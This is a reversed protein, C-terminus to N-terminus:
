QEFTAEKLMKEVLDTYSMGEYAAIEPCISLPTMGPHTNVELTYYVQNIEDYILEVRVMGKCEFISWVKEAIDIIDRYVDPTIPAPLLHESFGETYKTEYDYFKKGKLLKLELIGLAKGDLVAIQMERGSIYQELIIEKGYPFDYSAFDFDDEPFIIEIGISSGQSLPKIVYPRELPDTKLNDSKKVIVSKAVKINNAKFIENSKKKNFALSSALVGCGTYPIKMINLLGPLCGDEGYTGHLANFVVDPKIEMIANGVDAGMDLFTVRHGLDLLSRVIGDSSMYSVEREASMGGGLVLVHKTNDIKTSDFEAIHVGNKKVFDILKEEGLLQCDVINSEERFITNFSIM